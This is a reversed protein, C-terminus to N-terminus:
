VLHWCEREIVVLCECLTVIGCLYILLVTTVKASMECPSQDKERSLSHYDSGVLWHHLHTKTVQRMLRVVPGGVNGHLDKPNM